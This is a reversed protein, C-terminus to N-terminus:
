GVGDGGLCSRFVAALNEEFREFTFREMLRRHGARGLEERRGVDGLLQLVASSIQDIDARNVLLGSEGDKIVSPTGGHAGGIVPKAYAMAELFVIGFGEKESPMIFLDCDRYHARLAEDSAPGALTVYQSVGCEEALARLRPIDDGQGVVRYDVAGAERVVRPLARVVSDVGKYRDNKGLRCVTLVVPPRSAPPRPTPPADDAKWFPDLSCPLIRIRDRPLGNRRSLEDRTYESIALVSDARRLSKRELLSLDKWVDEGYTVVCSKAKMGVIKPFLTLPALSVHGAVILDPRFTLAESFYSGIFRRKSRGARTYRSFGGNVYRADPPVGDNLVVARLSAGNRQAWRGAAFCLARCFMQIGGSFGFAEPLVLLIRSNRHDM